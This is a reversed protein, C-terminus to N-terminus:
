TRRVEYISAQEVMMTAGTETVHDAIDNPRQNGILPCRVRYCEAFSEFRGPLFDGCLWGGAPKFSNSEKKTSSM